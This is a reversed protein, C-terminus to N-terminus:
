YLSSLFLAKFLILHKGFLLRWFSFRFNSALLYGFFFMYLVPICQQQLFDTLFSFVAPFPQWFFARSHFAYQQQSAGIPPLFFFDKLFIRASFLRHSFSFFTSVALSALFFQL